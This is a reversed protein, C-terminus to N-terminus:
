LIYKSQRIRNREQEEELQKQKELHRKRAYEQLERAKKQAEEPTLQPTNIDQKIIQAPEEFDPENQHEYIWEMGHEVSNKGYLCAKEAVNKSFGMEMFQKVIGADTFKSISEFEEPKEQVVQKDGENIQIEPNITTNTTDSM